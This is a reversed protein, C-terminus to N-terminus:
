RDARAMVGNCIDMAESIFSDYRSLEDESIDNLILAERIIPLTHEQLVEIRLKTQKQMEEHCRLNLKELLIDERM